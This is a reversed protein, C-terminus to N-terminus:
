FVQFLLRLTLPGLLVLCPADQEWVSVKSLSYFFPSITPVYGDYRQPQLLFPLPVCLAVVKNRSTSTRVDVPFSM